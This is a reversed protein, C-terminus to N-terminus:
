KAYFGKAYIQSHLVVDVFGVDGKQQADAAVWRHLATVLDRGFGFRRHDGLVALRSLKYYTAAPPKYARITGIPALSPTLRLLFHTSVKEFSFSSHTLSTAAGRALLCIVFTDIEGDLPFKQEHHFVGV